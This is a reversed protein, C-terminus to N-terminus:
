RYAIPPGKHVLESEIDKCFEGGDKVIQGSVLDLVFEVGVDPWRFTRLETVKARFQCADVLLRHVLSNIDLIGQM